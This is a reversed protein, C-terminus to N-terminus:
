SVKGSKFKNITADLEPWEGQLQGCHRCATFEVYDESSPALWEPVYGSYSKGGIHEQSFLDSCKASVRYLKAKGGCRQCKSM